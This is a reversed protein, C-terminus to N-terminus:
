GGNSLSSIVSQLASSVALPSKVAGSIVGDDSDGDSMKAAPAQAQAKTRIDDGDGDNKRIQNVAAPTSSSISSISM